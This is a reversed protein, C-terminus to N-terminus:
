NNSIEYDLSLSRVDFDKLNIKRKGLNKRKEKRVGNQDTETYICDGTLLNYDEYSEAATDGEDAYHPFTDKRMGILYWGDKQFRFQHSTNWDWNGDGGGQYLFLSGKSIKISPAFYDYGRVGAEDQCLITNEAKVALRYTHDKNGTAIILMRPSDPDTSKEVIFAIDPIGDWNLDGEVSSQDEQSPAEALLYWGEPILSLVKAMITLSKSQEDPKTDAALSMYCAVICCMGIFVVVLLRYSKKM